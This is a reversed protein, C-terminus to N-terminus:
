PPALTRASELSTTLHTQSSSSEGRQSFDSVESTNLVMENSSSQSEPQVAPEQSHGSAYDQPPMSYIEASYIDFPTLTNLRRRSGM